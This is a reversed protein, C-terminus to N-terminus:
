QTSHSQLFQQVDQDACIFGIDATREFLNRVLVDIAIQAKGQLALVAKKQSATALNAVLAGALQEFASRTTQMNTGDGSMQSLLSLNDWVGQLVALRERYSRVNVMHLSLKTDSM